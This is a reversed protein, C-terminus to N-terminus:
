IVQSNKKDDGDLGNFQKVFDIPEPYKEKFRQFPRFIFSVM